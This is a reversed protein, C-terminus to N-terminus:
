YAIHSFCPFFQSQYGSVFMKHHETLFIDVRASSGLFRWVCKRSRGKLKMPKQIGVILFSTLTRLEKNANRYIYVATSMQLSNKGIVVGTVNKITLSSNVTLAM